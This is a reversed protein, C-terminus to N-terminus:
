VGSRRNLKRLDAVIQEGLGGDLGTPTETSLVLLADLYSAIAAGSQLPPAVHGLYDQFLAAVQGLLNHGSLDARRTLARLVPQLAAIVQPRKTEDIWQERFMEALRKQDRDVAAGAPDFPAPSRRILIDPDTAESQTAAVDPDDDSIFFSVVAQTGYRRQKGCHPCTVALKGRGAATAEGRGPDHFVPIAAKCKKCYVGLYWEGAIVNLTSDAM